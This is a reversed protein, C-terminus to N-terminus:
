AQQPTCVQWTHPACGCAQSAATSDPQWPAATVGRPDGPALALLLPFAVLSACYCAAVLRAHHGGAMPLLRGVVAAVAGSVLLLTNLSRRCRAGRVPVHPLASICARPPKRASTGAPAGRPCPAWTEPSPCSGRHLGGPTARLVGRGPKPRCPVATCPVASEGGGKGRGKGACWCRMAILPLTALGGAGGAWPALALM